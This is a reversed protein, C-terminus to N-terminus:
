KSLKEQKHMLYAEEIFVYQQNIVIDMPINQKMNMLLVEAEDFSRQHLAERYEEEWRLVEQKDTVIKGRHLASSLNLREFLRRANSTHINNKKNEIRVLTRKTCIGEEELETASIGLM